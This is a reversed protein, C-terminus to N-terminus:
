LLEGSSDFTLTWLFIEGHLPLLLWRLGERLAVTGAPPVGSCYRGCCHQFMQNELPSCLSKLILCTEFLKSFYRCIFGDGSTSDVIGYCAHTFKPHHIGVGGSFCGVRM